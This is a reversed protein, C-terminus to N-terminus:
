KKPEEDFSGKMRDAWNRYSAINGLNRTIAAHRGRGRPVRDAWGGLPEAPPPVPANVGVKAPIEPRTPVDGRIRESSSM